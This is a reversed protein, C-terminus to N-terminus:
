IYKGLIAGLLTCLAAIVISWWTQRFQTKYRRHEVSLFKNDQFDRLLPLPYIIANAYLELKQAFDIYHNSIVETSVVFVKKRDENRYYFANLKKSYKYLEKDYLLRMENENLTSFHQIAVYKNEVLEDIFYLFDCLEVYDREIKTKDSDENYYIRVVPNPNLEWGIAMRNLNKRLLRMVQLEEIKGSEKYCLITSIIQKENTTLERM